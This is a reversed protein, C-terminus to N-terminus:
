KVPSSLNISIGQAKYEDDLDDLLGEVMSEARTKHGQAIKAHLRNRQEKISEEYGSIWEILQEKLDAPETNITRKIVIDKLAELATIKDNSAIILGRKVWFSGVHKGLKKDPELRTIEHNIKNILTQQKAAFDTLEQPVFFPSSRLQMTSNFGANLHHAKANTTISADVSAHGGENGIMAHPDSANTCANVYGKRKALADKNPTGGWKLGLAKAATKIEELTAIQPSDKPYPDNTFSFKSYPLEIRKIKGLAAQRDETSLLAIGKLAQLIGQLRAHELAARLEKDDGLGEAFFGMGAKLFKFNILEDDELFSGQSVVADLAQRFEAEIAFAVLKLDLRGSVGCWNAIVHSHTTSPETPRPHGYISQFMRSQWQAYDLPLGVQDEDPYFFMGGTNRLDGQWQLGSQDVLIMREPPDFPVIPCHFGGSADALVMGAVTTAKVLCRLQAIQHKTLKGQYLDTNMVGDTNSIENRALVQLHRATLDDANTPLTEMIKSYPNMFSCGLIDTDRLLNKFETLIADPCNLQVQAASPYNDLTQEEEAAAAHMKFAQVQQITIRDEPSTKLKVGPVHNMRHLATPSLTVLFDSNANFENFSLTSFPINLLELTRRIKNPEGDNDLGALQDSLGLTKIRKYLIKEVKGTLIYQTQLTDDILQLNEANSKIIFGEFGDAVPFSITIPQIDLLRFAEELKNYLCLSEELQNKKRSSSLKEMNKYQVSNVGYRQRVKVFLTKTMDPTLYISDKNAKLFKRLKLLQAKPASIVFGDHNSPRFTENTINLNLKKFLLTIDAISSYGTSDIRGKKQIAAVYLARAKDTTLNIQTMEDKFAALAAKSAFSGVKSGVTDWHRSFVLEEKLESPILAFIKQKDENESFLLKILLDLDGPKKNKSLIRLYAFLDQDEIEYRADVSSNEHGVLGKVRKNSTRLKKFYNNDIDAYYKTGIVEAFDVCISQQHRVFKGLDNTTDLVMFEDFERLEKVIQYHSRFKDM